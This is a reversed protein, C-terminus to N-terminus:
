AFIFLTVTVCCAVISVCVFSIERFTLLDPTIAAILRLESVAVILAAFILRDPYTVILLKFFPVVVTSPPQIVVPVISADSTDIIM